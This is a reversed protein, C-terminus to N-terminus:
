QSFYGEDNLVPAATSVDMKIAIEVDEGYGAAILERASPSARIDAPANSARFAAVAARAEPSRMRDGMRDIVAGAALLDELCPRLSQDPWVEGCAVIAIIQGEQRAREAVADVNRLCGTLVRGKEKLAVLSVAAGNLSPLVLREGAHLSSLSAPSLSHPYARSMQARPVALKADHRRALSHAREDRVAAPYIEAGRGVGIDVATSFSLVDIVLIVEADKGIARLGEPGWDFRIQYGHQDYPDASM